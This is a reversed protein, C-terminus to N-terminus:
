TANPPHEAPAPRQQSPALAPRPCPSAALPSVTLSPLTPLVASLLPNSEAVGDHHRAPACSNAAVEEAQEGEQVMVSAHHHMTQGLSLQCLCVTPLLVLAAVLVLQLLTPLKMGGM